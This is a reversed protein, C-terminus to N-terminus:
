EAKGGNHNGAGGGSPATPTPFPLDTQEFQRAFQFCSM